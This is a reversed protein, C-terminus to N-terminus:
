LGFLEAMYSPAPYHFPVPGDPLGDAFQRVFPDDSKTIVEPTLDSYIQGNALFIVRDALRLTEGIDHTVIISTMGLAQHLKKILRGVIGVSIPDLGTFPEDYLMIAPDLAVARALAVRRAMGGSLEAPMMKKAGRLGVAQLKLLVLIRILEEPLQAQERYPFAVNDFVNLDTFLAGFQFLMGIRRRIDFLSARNLQSIEHGEVFVSGSVPRLRGSILGFLTTKGGGSGGMIAVIEGKKVTLNIDNLINRDGYSFCVNKLCIIDSPNRLSCNGM